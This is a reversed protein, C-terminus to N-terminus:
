QGITGNQSSSQYHVYFQLTGEIHEIEDIDDVPIRITEKEGNKASKSTLELYFEEEDQSDRTFGLTIESGNKIQDSGSM